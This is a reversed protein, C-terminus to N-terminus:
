KIIFRNKVYNACKQWKIIRDPWYFPTGSERKTKCYDIQFKWDTYFQAPPTHHRKDVQCLWHAYWGDWKWQYNWTGMECEILTVLDMWWVKYAYNVYDQVPSDLAFWKHIVKKPLKKRLMNNEDHLESQRFHRFLIEEELIEWENSNNTIQKNIGEQTRDSAKAKQIFSVGHYNIGKCDWVKTVWSKLLWDIEEIRKVTFKWKAFQISQTYTFNDLIEQKEKRLKCEQKAIKQMSEFYNDQMFFYGAIFLSSIFLLWFLIKKM